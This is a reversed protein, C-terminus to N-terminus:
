SECSKWRLIVEVMESAIGAFSASLTIYSALFRSLQAYDSLVASDLEPFESRYVVPHGGKGVFVPATPSAPPPSRVGNL